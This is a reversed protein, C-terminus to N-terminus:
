ETGSLCSKKISKLALSHYEHSLINFCCIWSCYQPVIQRRFAECLENRFASYLLVSFLYLVPEDNILTILMILFSDIFISLFFPLSRLGAECNSSYSWLVVPFRFCKKRHHLAFSLYYSAFIFVDQCLCLCLFTDFPAINYCWSLFDFFPCSFKLSMQLFSFVTQKM